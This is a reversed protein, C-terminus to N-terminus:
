CVRPILEGVPKQLRRRGGIETELFVKGPPGEEATGIISANRGQEHKRLSALMGAAESPPVVIIARGESTIELPDLGLLEAASRVAPDIPIKPQSVNITVRSKQAIENLASALGGRTPDKMTHITYKTLLPALLPVLSSVDSELDAEFEIGERFSMLAVGHSGVPGTVIIADGPRTNADLVPHQTCRKGLGTTVFMIQDIIGRPVVKTDGAIIPVSDAKSIEDMSRLVIDLASFEFGEELVMASTIAIPIAGMMLVDNLTGCISLKGIDGGPFFVPSVTHADTSIVIDGDQFEQRSVVAGDDLAEVGINGPGKSTVKLSIRHGIFELLQDMKLGGAGHALEVYRAKNGM